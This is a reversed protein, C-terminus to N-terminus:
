RRVGTASLTFGLYDIGSKVFACKEPKLRLGAEQLQELVRRAHSLHEEFSKSVILIDDLYTFVFEWDIGSFLQNMLRQFTAPANTLGFPMRRYHFLGKHCSFATKQKSQEALKVQHYGKMLDLSSFFKGKRRGITDILEDIRPISYHDPTTDKNVGRYDVCVGLGGNKKRVLVLNSAYRSNSPEICGTSELRDLEEELEVRLAYPLRRPCAKVPKANGTDIVHEVVDTVGLEQKSLAFAQHESLLIRIFLERAEGEVSEGVSLRGQLRAQRDDLLDDPLHCVGVM